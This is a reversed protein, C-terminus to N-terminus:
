LWVGNELSSSYLNRAELSNTLLATFDARELGSTLKDVWYDLGIQDVDRNLGNQYTLLIFDKNSLLKEPGFTATFEKSNIFIYALDSISVGSDLDSIFYDFGGSDPTRNLVVEYLRYLSGANLDVDLAVVLEGSENVLREINILSDSKSGDTYILDTINGNKQISFEQDVSFSDIGDRGDISNRESNGILFDSYNSGIVNEILSRPDDNFLLANAVNGAAWVPKSSLPQNNAQQATPMLSYKGPRLDVYVEAEYNSFDYTDTGNGDWITMYIKNAAPLGQGVGDIFLEGTTTSWKYTTNGSRTGYDAGYLYQLAAIDLQMYSQPQNAADGQFSINQDSPDSRYTMLSWNQGDSQLPLAPTGYRPGTVGLDSSLDVGTYDDHGHKLGLTHGIEHLLTAFGWNGIQPNEYFPQGTEGFWIDGSRELASPFMGQASDVQSSKTQAFRLVAHNSATEEIMRFSLNTYDEILKLGYKAASKQAVNFEELDANLAQHYNYGYFKGNTPFSFTLPESTVAWKSGILIGDVYNSGSFYFHGDSARNIQLFESLNTNAM